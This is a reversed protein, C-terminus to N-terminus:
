SEKNPWKAGKCWDDLKKLAAASWDERRPYFHPGALSHGGDDRHADIAFYFKGTQGDWIALADDNSCNLWAWVYVFWM